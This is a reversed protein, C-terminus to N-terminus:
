PGLITKSGVTMQCQTNKIEQAGERWGVKEKHRALTPALCPM